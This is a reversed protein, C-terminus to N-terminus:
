GQDANKKGKETVRILEAIFGPAENVADLEFEGATVTRDKVTPPPVLCAATEGLMDIVTSAIRLTLGDVAASINKGTVFRAWHLLEDLTMPSHLPCPMCRSCYTTGGMHSGCFPREAPPQVNIGMAELEIRCLPCPTLPSDGRDHNYAPM